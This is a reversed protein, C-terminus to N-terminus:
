PTVERRAVGVAEAGDLLKAVDITFMRDDAYCEYYVKAISDVQLDIILRRCKPPIVGASALSM